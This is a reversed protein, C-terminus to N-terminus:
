DKKEDLEKLVEEVRDQLESYKQYIIRIVPWYYNKSVYNFKDRLSVDGPGLPTVLPMGDVSIISASVVATIESRLQESTGQFEKTLLGVELEEGVKLTRLAIKRGGLDFTDELKGLELLTTLDSSLPSPEEALSELEHAQELAEEWISQEM